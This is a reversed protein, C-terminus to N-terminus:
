MRNTRKPKSEKDKTVLRIERLLVLSEESMPYQNEVSFTQKNSVMKHMEDNFEAPTILQRKGCNYFYYEDNIVFAGTKSIGLIGLDNAQQVMKLLEIEKLLAAQQNKALTEDIKNKKLKAEVKSIKAYEKIIIKNLKKSLLKRRKDLKVTHKKCYDALKSISTQREILRAVMHDEIKYRIFDPNKRKAIPSIESEKMGIRLAFQKFAENANAGYIAQVNKLSEEINQRIAEPKCNVVEECAKIFNANFYFQKNEIAYDWFHNTPYFEVLKDGKLYRKPSISLFKGALPNFIDVVKRNFNFFSFGHDIKVFKKKDDNEAYVTNGTHFDHDGHWLVNAASYELTHGSEDNLDLIKRILSDKSDFLKLRAREGAFLPRSNLGAAAFGDQTKKSKQFISGVYIDDITPTPNSDDKALICRASYEPITLGYLRGGVYEAVTEGVNAGQKLLMTESQEGHKFIYVGTRKGTNKAGGKKPSYKIPHKLLEQFTSDPTKWVKPNLYYDDVQRHYSQLIRKLEGAGFALNDTDKAAMSKAVPVLKKPLPLVLKKAAKQTFDDIEKELEKLESHTLQIKQVMKKDAIFAQIIPLPKGESEKINQKIAKLNELIADTDSKTTGKHIAM